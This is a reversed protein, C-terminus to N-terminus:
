VKQKKTEGEWPWNEPVKDGTGIFELYMFYLTSVLHYISLLVRMIYVYKM